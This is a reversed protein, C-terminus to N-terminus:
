ISANEEKRLRAAEDLWAAVLDAESVTGLYRGSERCVVPVADGVFGRLREMAEALNTGDDFVLRPPAISLETRKHGAPTGPTFVGLLSGDPDLVFAERWGQEHLRGAVDEPTDEATATVADSRLLDVVSLAAFHAHDRGSSFDIGRRALQVDFLSRGFARHSVLNSFVVAVM